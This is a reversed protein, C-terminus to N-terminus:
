GTYCVRLSCSMCVSFVDDGGDFWRAIRLDFIRMDKTLGATSAVVVGSPAVVRCADILVCEDGLGRQVMGGFKSSTSATSVVGGWRTGVEVLLQELVVGEPPLVAHLAAM